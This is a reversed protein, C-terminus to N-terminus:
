NIHESYVSMTINVTANAFSIFHFVFKLISTTTIITDSKILKFKPGACGELAQKESAVYAYALVFFLLFSICHLTRCLMSMLM